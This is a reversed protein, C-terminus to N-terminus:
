AATTTRAIALTVRRSASRANSLKVLYSTTLAKKAMTKAGKQQKTFVISLQDRIKVVFIRFIIRNMAVTFM